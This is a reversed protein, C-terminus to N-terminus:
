LKAQGDYEESGDDPDAVRDGSSDLTSEALILHPIPVGSPAGTAANKRILQKQNRNESM